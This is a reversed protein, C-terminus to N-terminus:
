FFFVFLAHQIVFFFSFFISVSHTSLCFYFNEQLLLFFFPFLFDLFLITCYLCDILFLVNFFFFFFM